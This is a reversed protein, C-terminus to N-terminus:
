RVITVTGNYPTQRNHLEVIYLYTGCPCQKLNCNGDWEEENSWTEFVIQGWRNFVQIHSNPFMDINEIIWTDNVGDSNPTFSNPISICDIESASVPVLIEESTCNNQDVITFSYAGQLLNTFTLNNYNTNNHIAKYPETGGSPYLEIEADAKGNCSPSTVKYEAHILEPDTLEVLNEITCNNADTITFYYEGSFLNNISKSDTIYDCIAWRYSYPPTGGNAEIDLYGNKDGHCLPMQMNLDYDLKFIPETISVTNTLSCNNEDNITFSYIGPSLNQNSFGITDNNWYCNLVGTGGDASIHIEGNNDGKCIIQSTQLEYNMEEPELLSANSYGVCGWSDTITLEYDGAPINELSPSHSNNSWKYYLPPIGDICDSNLMGIEDGFCLIDQETEINVILSDTSTLIIEQTKICNNEDTVSITYTDAPLNLIVSEEDGTSWLYEYPALGGTTNTYINGWQQGCIVSDIIATIQIEEPETIQISDSVTCDDIDTITFYYWGAYLDNRNIDTNQDDWQIQCLSDCSIEVSGNNKGFCTVQNVINIEYNSSLPPEITHNLIVSCYNDDFITVFYEGSNLNTRDASNVSPDDSWIFDFPEQGGELQINIIGINSDSCPIYETGSISANFPEAQPVFISDSIICNSETTVTVYYWGSTINELINTTTSNEDSWLVNDIIQNNCSVQVIANSDNYCSVPQLTEIFIEPSDTITVNHSLSNSCGNPATYLYSMLHEGIPTSSPSFWNGSVELGDFTGGTPYVHFTVDSSNHCYISDIGTLVIEPVELIEFTKSVESICGNADEYIYNLTNLGIDLDSPNFSNDSNINIGDITGGVPNFAPYVIAANQCYYDDVQSIIPTTTEFNNIEYQTETIFNGSQYSYTITNIGINALQPYFYGDIIADGSWTGGPYDTLLEFPEENNCVITPSLLVPSQVNEIFIDFSQSILCNSNGIQYNFTHLGFGAIETNLISDGSVGPGSWVGGPPYASLTYEIENICITDPNNNTISESGGIVWIIQSQSSNCDTNSITYTVQNYGTNAMTPNFTGLNSDTIGTGSWFGGSTVPVLTLESDDDCLMNEATFEPNPANLVEVDMTETTICGSNNTEYQITHLGVGASLPNFSAISNDSIGNGSWVGGSHLPNLTIENDYLCAQAPINFEASIHPRINITLTDESICAGNTIIYYVQAEGIGVVSPSFIGIDNIIGDGTWIGGPNTSQLEVTSTDYCVNLIGDTEASIYDSIIIQISDVSTCIPNSIEYYITHTGAGAVQPSFKGSISNTIGDGSWAGGLHNAVLLIPDENICMPEIENIEIEYSNYVTINASETNTCISDSYEYSVITQNSNCLDPNIVGNASDTVSEGSWLGGIPTASLSILGNNNCVSEPATITIPAEQQIFIQTTQSDSCNEFDINYSIDYFGTPINIINIIGNITDVLEPANWNGFPYASELDLFELNSCFNGETLIEADPVVINLEVTMSDQCNYENELYYNYEGQDSLDIDTLELTTGEYSLSNPGIWNPNGAGSGILSTNTAICVFPDYTVSATPAPNVIVETHIETSCGIDDFVTLFYTGSHNVSLSSINIQSNYSTWNNPGQWQYHFFNGPNLLLNDRECLTTSEPLVPYPYEHVEINLQEIYECGNSGTVTVGYIGGDSLQSDNITFNNNTNIFGDPGKWLYSVGDEASFTIDDGLCVPSSTTVNADPAPKVEIYTSFTKEGCPYFVTASVNGSETLVASISTTDTHGTNWVIYYNDSFEDVFLDFKITDNECVSEHSPIYGSIEIPDFVMITEELYEVGCSCNTYAKIIITEADETIDDNFVDYPISISEEGEPIIITTPIDSYDTGMTATGSIEIEFELPENISNDDSRTFFLENSCDEYTKNPIVWNEPQNKILPITGSSFSGAKLFVGSDFIPDAADAISLRIHYTECPTVEAYATLTYTMGDFQIHQGNDNNYYFQSNNNQNVNNISVPTDTEPITALNKNEYDEPGGSIQFAFIDNFVNGVYEEYEESGFAYQFSIMDSAPVFDFELIAADFTSRNIISTLISDGPTQMNGCTAPSNNPGSADIAEGSSLIIGSNFDLGPLGNSFYGISEESGTYVINSAEVCGSILVNQVLEAPTSNTINIVPARSNKQSNEAISINLRGINNDENIWVRAYLINSYDQTNFSIESKQNIVQTCAIINKQNDNITYVEIGHDAISPHTITITYKAQNDCNLEFYLDKYKYNRACYPITSNSNAVLEYDITNSYNEYFNILMTENSTLVSNQAIICTGITLSLILTALIKM